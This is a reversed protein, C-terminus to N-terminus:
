RVNECWKAQSGWKTRAWERDAVDSLNPMQVNFEGRFDEPGYTYPGTPQIMKGTVCDYHEGEKTTVLFPGHVSQRCCWWFLFCHLVQVFSFGRGEYQAMNNGGPQFELVLKGGERRISKPKPGVAGLSLDADSDIVRGVGSRPQGDAKREAEEAPSEPVAWTDPDKEVLQPCPEAFVSVADLAMWEGGECDISFTIVPPIPQTYSGDQQLEPPRAGEISITTGGFTKKRTGPEVPPRNDFPPTEIEGRKKPPNPPVPRDDFYVLPGELPKVSAQIVM